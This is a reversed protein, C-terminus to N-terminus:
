MPDLSSPLLPRNLLDIRVSGEASAGMVELFGKLIDSTTIIGVLEGDEVVALAGIKRKLLIEAAEELTTQPTVTVVGRTMVANVETRDLYGLHQRLDRDTIIGLLKGDSVVPLARFKGTQMKIRAAALYDDPTVTQPNKSMHRGVLM